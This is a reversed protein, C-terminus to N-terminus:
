VEGDGLVVFPFAPGRPYWLLRSDFAERARKCALIKILDSLFCPLPNLRLKMM